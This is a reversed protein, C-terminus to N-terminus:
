ANVKSNRHNLQQPVPCELFQLMMTGDPVAADNNWRLHQVVLRVKECSVSIRNTPAPTAQLLAEEVLGCGFTGTGTSGGVLFTSKAHQTLVSASWTREKGALNNNEVYSSIVLQSAPCLWAQKPSKARQSKQWECSSLTARQVASVCSKCM